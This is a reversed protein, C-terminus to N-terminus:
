ELQLPVQLALVGLEETAVLLKALRLRARLAHERRKRRGQGSGHQVVLVPKLVADPCAAEARYETGLLEAQLPWNRHLHEPRPIGDVVGQRELAEAALPDRGASEVM